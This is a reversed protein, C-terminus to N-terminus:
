VYKRESKTHEVQLLKIIKSKTLSKLAFLKKTEIHQVLMVKGFSGRGLLRLIKFDKTNVKESIAQLEEPIQIDPSFGVGSEDEPLKSNPDSANNSDPAGKGHPKTKEISDDIM